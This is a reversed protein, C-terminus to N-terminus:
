IFFFNGQCIHTLIKYVLAGFITLIMIKRTWITDIIAYSSQIEWTAKGHVSQLFGQPFLNTAMSQIEKLNGELLSWIGALDEEGNEAPNPTESVDPHSGHFHKYKTKWIKVWSISKKTPRPKNALIKCSLEM